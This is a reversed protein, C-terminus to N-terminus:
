ININRFSALRSSYQKTIDSDKYTISQGETSETLIGASARQNFTQAVIETAIQTLNAPLTHQLPNTEDTFDIKYGGVYVIKIYKEAEPLLFAFTVKGNDNLLYDNVNLDLWTIAGWTGGRYQVSTLSSVPFNRLFLKFVKDTDFYETFTAETFSRNCFREISATANKILEDILNDHTTGSIGLFTKVKEKTTINSM